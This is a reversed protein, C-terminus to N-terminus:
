TSLFIFRLVLHSHSSFDFSANLELVGCLFFCQKGTGLISPGDSHRSDGSGRGPLVLKCHRRLSKPRQKWLQPPFPILLNRDKVEGRWNQRLNHFCCFISLVPLGYAFIRRFKLSSFYLRTFRNLANHFVDTNTKSALKLYLYKPRCWDCYETTKAIKSSVCFWGLLTLRRGKALSLAYPKQLNVKSNRRHNFIDAVCMYILALVEWTGRVCRKFCLPNRRVMAITLLKLTGCKSTTQVQNSTWFKGNIVSEYSQVM